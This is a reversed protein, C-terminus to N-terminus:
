SVNKDRLDREIISGSLPYKDRKHISLGQYASTIYLKNEEFNLACNTPRPVPVEIEDRIDGNTDLELVKFGDWLAVFIRDDSSICGGDPTYRENSFDLWIDKSILKKWDESFEFKYIKKKFSDAILINNTNPLKIFTNPIFVDNDIVYSHNNNSVVVAGPTKGKKNMVGYIYLNESIKVGDNSRFADSILFAPTKYVMNVLGTSTNFILIGDISTLYVLDNNVFLVTTIEIELEYSDVKFHSGVFLMNNSIDIWYIKKYLTDFYIGEGLETNIDFINM